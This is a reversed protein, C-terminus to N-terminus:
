RSTLDAPPALDGLLADVRAWLDHCAAREAEPLKAVEAEDRLGALAPDQRWFQLCQQVERRADPTGDEFLKARLVLDARLWELAQKRWGARAAEDPRPDDKVQGSGARAAACAADYRVASALDDAWAPRRAFADRYLRASEAHLGKPCCVRALILVEEPDAPRDDGRLLDLLRADLAAMREADRIWQASPYPWGPQGSGLEHGKRLAALAEAFEGQRLHASGLGILACADDPRLRLAARYEAIAADAQGEAALANGLNYHACADDPRLKLATRFEAIAADTQGQGALATGLGILACADDPRLRLAARYEAIAADAQGEAALASGLGFHACADDPRLRLAARYEAIAADTQGVAALAIGLNYHACADSPRLRLAARFEAIAAGTQGAAALANGLGIHTAAADDFALEAEQIRGRAKLPDGHSRPPEDLWRDAAGPEMLPTAIVHPYEPHQMGPSGEAQVMALSTPILTGLVIPLFM